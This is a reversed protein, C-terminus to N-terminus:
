KQQCYALMREPEGPGLQDEETQVIEYRENHVECETAEDLNAAHWEEYGVILVVTGEEFIGVATVDIDADVGRRSLGLPRAVISATASAVAWGSATPLIMPDYPEETEPDLPTGPPYTKAQPTFFPVPEGFKARLTAQADRFGQLDPEPIAM